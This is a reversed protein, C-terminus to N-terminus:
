ESGMIRPITKYYIDSLTKLDVDFLNKLKLSEGGVNGLKTFNIGSLKLEREFEGFNEKRVSIIIRSQSESFLSFDIRSKVPLEVQCGIM